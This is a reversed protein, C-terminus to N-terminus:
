DLSEEPDEEGYFSESRVVIEMSGSQERDVKTTNPMLPVEGERRVRLVAVPNSDQHEKILTSGRAKPDLRSRSGPKELAILTQQAEEIENTMRINDFSLRDNTSTVEVLEATLTELHKELDEAKASLRYIEEECKEELPTRKPRKFSEEQLSPYMDFRPKQLDKAAAFMVNGKSKVKGQPLEPEGSSEEESDSGRRFGSDFSLERRPIEQNWESGARRNLPNRVLAQAKSVDAFLQKCLEQLEEKRERTKHLERGVVQVKVRVKEIFNHMKLTPESLTM